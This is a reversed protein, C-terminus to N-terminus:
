RNPPRLMSQSSFRFALELLQLRPVKSVPMKIKGELGAPLLEGIPKKLNDRFHGLQVANAHTREAEAPFVKTYAESLLGKRRRAHLGLM